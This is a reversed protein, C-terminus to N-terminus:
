PLPELHAELLRLYDAPKRIQEPNIDPNIIRAYQLYEHREQDSKFGDRNEIQEIRAKLTKM